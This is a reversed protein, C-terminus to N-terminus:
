RGFEWTPIVFQFLVVAGVILGLILILLVVIVLWWRWRGAAAAARQQRLPSLQGALTPRPDSSPQVPGPPRSLRVSSPPMAVAVPPASPPQSIPYPETRTDSDRAAAVNALRLQPGRMGMRIMDGPFLPTPGTVRRDNVYTGNTSGLDHLVLGAPTADIRAHRWSVGENGPDFALECVPDRGIHLAALDREFVSPPRGSAFIELRIRM